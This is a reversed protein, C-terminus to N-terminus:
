NRSTNPLLEVNVVAKVLPPNSPPTEAPNVPEPTEVPVEPEDVPIDGEKCAGLTDGHNKVHADVAAAAVSLTIDQKQPEKHCITVADKAALAISPIVLGVISLTLLLVKKM